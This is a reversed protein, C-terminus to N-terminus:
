RRNSELTDYLPTVSTVVPEEHAVSVAIRVNPNDPVKLTARPLAMPYVFLHSYCRAM